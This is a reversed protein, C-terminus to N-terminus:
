GPWWPGSLDLVQSRGHGCELLVKREAAIRLAAQV